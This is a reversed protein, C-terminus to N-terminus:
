GDFVMQYFCKIIVRDKLVLLSKKTIDQLPAGQSDRGGLIEEELYNASAAQLSKETVFFSYCRVTM